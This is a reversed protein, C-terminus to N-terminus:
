RAHDGAIVAGLIAGAVIPGMLNRERVVVVRDRYVRHFRHARHWRRDHHRYYWRSGHGRGRYALRDHRARREFEHHNLRKRGDRDRYSQHRDSALAQGAGAFLVTAVLISSLVPKIM